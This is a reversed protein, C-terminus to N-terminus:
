PLSSGITMFQRSPYDERFSLPVFPVFSSRGLGTAIGDNHGEKGPGEERPGEERGGPREASSAPHDGGQHSGKDSRPRLSRLGVATPASGAALNHNFAARRHAVCRDKQKRNRRRGLLM